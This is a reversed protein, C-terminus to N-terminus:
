WLWRRSVQCGPGNWRRRPPSPWGQPVPPPWRGRYIWRIQFGFIDFIQCFTGFHIGFEILLHLEHNMDWGHVLHPRQQLVEVQRHVLFSQAADGAAVPLSEVPHDVLLLLYLGELLPRLQPPLHLLHHPLGFPQELISAPMQGTMKIWLKRLFLIQCHQFHKMTPQMLKAIYVIEKYQQRTYLHSLM